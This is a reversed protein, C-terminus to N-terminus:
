GHSDGDGAAVVIQQAALESLFLGVDDTIMSLAAPNGGALKRTLEGAIQAASAGGALLCWIASGTPNLSRFEGTGVHYLRVTDEGAWVVDESVQWSTANM